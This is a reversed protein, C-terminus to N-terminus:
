RPATGHAAGAPLHATGRPGPPPAALWVLLAWLLIPILWVKEAAIRRTM